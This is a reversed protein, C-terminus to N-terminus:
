VGRFSSPISKKSLEEGNERIFDQQWKPLSKFWTTLVTYEPQLIDSDTYPTESLVIKLPELNRDNSNDVLFQTDFHERGKKWVGCCEADRLSQLPDKLTTHNNLISIYSAILNDFPLNVAEFSSAKMSILNNKFEKYHTEVKKSLLNSRASFKNGLKWDQEDLHKILLLMGDKFSEGRLTFNKHLNSKQPEMIFSEASKRVLEIIKSM